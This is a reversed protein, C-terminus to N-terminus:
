SISPTSSHNIALIKQVGLVKLFFNMIFSYFRLAICQILFDPEIAFMDLCLLVPFEFGFKKPKEM